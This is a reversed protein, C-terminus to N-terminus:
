RLSGHFKLWRGLRHGRRNPRPVCRAASSCLAFVCVSVAVVYLALAIAYM